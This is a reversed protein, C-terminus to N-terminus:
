DVLFISINGSSKYTGVTKINAYAIYYRSNDGTIFLGNSLLEIKKIDGKNYKESTKMIKNENNTSTKIWIAIEIESPNSIDIHQLVKELDDKITQAYSSTISLTLIFLIIAIKKM